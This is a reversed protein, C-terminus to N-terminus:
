RKIAARRKPKRASADKRELEALPLSAVVNVRLDNEIEERDYFCPDTTERIYALGLGIGLGGFVAVLMVFGFDPSIPKAPAVAPDVIRFQESKKRRELEEAMRASLSKALLEAYRAKVTQYDRLIKTMALEVQPTREVREKYAAIQGKLDDIQVAYSDMQAQYMTRQLAMPDEAPMFSEPVPEPKPRTKTRQKEEQRLLEIRRKLGKVDPYNDTYRGKFSKLAEEHARIERSTEDEEFMDEDPVAFSAAAMNEEMQRMQTEMMLAMQKETDWRKEVNALEEKLQNLISINSRLENPLAGMHVRKFDELEKEKGELEYRIRLAERELFDTTAMAIEERANLNEEIYKNAIFNTIDAAIKPDHWAFSINFAYNDGKGRLQVAIRERLKEVLTVTKISDRSNSTKKESGVAKRIRETWSGSIKESERNLGFNNVINELNTRSHIQQTITALRKEVTGSVVPRVYSDPIKQPEVLILTKAEYVRPSVAYFVLGILLASLFPIIIWWKRRSVMEFYPKIEIKEIKAM